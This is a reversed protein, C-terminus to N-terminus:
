RLVRVPVHSWGAVNQMAVRRCEDWLVEYRPMFDLLRELAIASEMRALAAGLCSHVGYGFGLNQAETRDRDIDFKDADTFADPDRNASGGLLFVPKGAPITVGHLTIEKMSRRVNYQAPAEYRLLEEVAAPVKGRDDLLKQWQDPNQAFTVAANGILKTVTEAGAGGLLTAFGAIEFDDLREMQGDEREIEAQVLRTFMDDQPEARRQQILEYYLGMAEAIAQQGEPSMEVQGPERHLSTDVWQRVQQRRDAPVGLMQTIVEVPFFAAFEQVVDFRDPDADAFCRDITSEVMPKLNAIQRPTFVKNVLSRMQRHEPPDMLIIMKMPLPEGSKVMALDLGYASSFTEYDKFAAAVDAHRSLAYFDHEPNYYVPAEERLRRYLEWPGNFFEESFPDFVLEAATM